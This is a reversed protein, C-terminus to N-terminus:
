VRQGGHPGEIFCTQVSVVMSVELGSYVDVVPGGIAGVGVEEVGILKVRFAPCTLGWTVFILLPFSRLDKGYARSLSM